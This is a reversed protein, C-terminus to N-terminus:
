EQSNQCNIKEIEKNRDEHLEKISKLSGALYKIKNKLMNIIFFQKLKKSEMLMKLKHNYKVYNNNDIFPLDSDNTENVDKGNVPSILLSLYEDLSSSELDIETDSLNLEKKIHSVSNEIDELTQKADAGGKGIVDLIPNNFHQFKARRLYVILLIIIIVLILIM